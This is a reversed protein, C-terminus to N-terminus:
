NFSIKDILIDHRDVFRECKTGGIAYCIQQWKKSHGSNEKTFDGFYFMMAHAYEHALVGYMYNESEKFRKKNLFIIIQNTQTITALGYVNPPIKDTIKIPFNVNVGYIQFIKKRIKLSEQEIKATIDKSLPNNKFTINDYQIYLIGLISIITILLFINYVKKM